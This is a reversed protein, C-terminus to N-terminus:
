ECYGVCAGGEGVGGQVDSSRVNGWVLKAVEERAELRQWM